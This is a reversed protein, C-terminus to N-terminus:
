NVFANKIKRASLAASIYVIIGVASLAILWVADAAPDHKMINWLILLGAAGDIVMYGVAIWMVRRTNKKVVAEEEKYEKANIFAYKDKAYWIILLSNMGLFVCDICLLYPLMDAKGALPLLIINPLAMILMGILSHISMIDVIDAIRMPMTKYLKMNNTIVSLYSISMSGIILGYSVAGIKGIFSENDFILAFMAMPYIMIILKLPLGDAMFALQIKKLFSIKKM